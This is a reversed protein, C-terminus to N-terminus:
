GITGRIIRAFRLWQIEKKWKFFEMKIFQFALILNPFMFGMVDKSHCNKKKKKKQIYVDTLVAYYHMHAVQVVTM